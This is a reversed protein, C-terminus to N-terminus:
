ASESAGAVGDAGTGLRLARAAAERAAGADHGRRVLFSVLRRHAAEPPLHRLRRARAEALRDLRQGDDREAAALAQDILPRDLGKASLGAAISRRGELRRDLAHEVFDAAFRADDVLGVEELRDLEAEVEDVDFGARVLRTWLERRTRQRVALLRLAREHLPLKRGPV